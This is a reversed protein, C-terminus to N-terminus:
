KSTKVWDSVVIENTNGFEKVTVIGRQVFRAIIRHTKLRTLGTEKVVYKQLYKGQHAVLVNLVKQEEPTMTKLVVGCTNTEVTLSGVSEADSKAPELSVSNTSPLEWTRKVYRLQPFALFFVVGIISVVVIVILALPIIWLYSTTTVTGNGMMGGMGGYNGDSGFHSGWMQSMWSSGYYSQSTAALYWSALALALLVGLTIIFITLFIYLKRMNVSFEHPVNLKVNCLAKFAM